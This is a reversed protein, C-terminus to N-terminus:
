EPVGEESPVPDIQRTGQCLTAREGQSLEGQGGTDTQPVPPFPLRALPKEQRRLPRHSGGSQESENGSDHM